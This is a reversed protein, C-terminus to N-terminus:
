AKKMLIDTQLDSGLWFDHSSFKSFGHKEYFRIAGKNQEWVGLWVPAKDMKRAQDLSYNLLSEGLRRGQFEGKVYIREVELGRPFIPETQAKDTNLKLLGAIQEKELLLYFYSETNEYEERLKKDSLNQQVYTNMNSSTNQSGFAEIFTSRILEFLQNTEHLQVERIEV